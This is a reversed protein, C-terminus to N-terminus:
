REVEVSFLNSALMRLVVPQSGQISLTGNVEHGVSVKGGKCDFEVHSNKPLPTPKLNNAHFDVLRVNSGAHVGKVADVTAELDKIRLRQRELKTRVWAPLKAERPDPERDM